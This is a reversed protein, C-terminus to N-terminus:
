PELDEPAFGLALLQARCWAPAGWDWFVFPQAYFGASPFPSPVQPVEATGASVIRVAKWLQDTFPVPTFPDAPDPGQWQYGLPNIIHTYPVDGAGSLLLRNDLVALSKLNPAAVAYVSRWYTYNTANEPTPAPISPPFVLDFSFFPTPDSGVAIRDDQPYLVPNFGILLPAYTLNYTQLGPPATIQKATTHNAFFAYSVQSGGSTLGFATFVYADKGAPWVGTIGSFLPEPSVLSASALGNGSWVIYIGEGTLANIGFDLFGRGIFFEDQRQGAAATRRSRMTPDEEQKKRAAAVRANRERAALQAVEERRRQEANLQALRNADTLAQSKNLLSQLEAKVTIRAPM